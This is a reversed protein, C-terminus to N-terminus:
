NSENNEKLIEEIILDNPLWGNCFYYCHFYTGPKNYHTKEMAGNEFFIKNKFMLLQRKFEPNWNRMFSVTTLAQIGILMAYPKGIQDLRIMIEKKISYPPNSIIYDYEFDPKYTLFDQGTWIHTPIVKHGAATLVKVYESDKTDFPCWIISNPKLYKLIPKVGRADTYYEDQKTMNRYMTNSM